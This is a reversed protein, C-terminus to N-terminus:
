SIKAFAEEENRFENMIQFLGSLELIRRVQPQPGIVAVRGNARAIRKYRGLMVGLGSSDIFTVRSLDFILNKVAERDLVADLTNRFDEAMGLDLEGVPRVLLTNREVKMELRM